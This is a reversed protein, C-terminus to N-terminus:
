RETSIHRRLSEVADTITRIDRASARFRVYQELDALAAPYDGLREHLMGRDRVEDLDWPCMALLLDMARGAREDDASQLARAKLNHLLRQLVQRPTISTLFYDGFKVQRGYTEQVLRECDEASLAQGGNFVDIYRPDDDLEDNRTVVHGPLGVASAALGARQCVEVYLIALTVPVGTRRELVEDFLLNRPDDYETENGAFGLERFLFNAAASGRTTPDTKTSLRERLATSLDDLRQEYADIDVTPNEARAILLAARALPVDDAPGDIADRFDDLTEAFTTM